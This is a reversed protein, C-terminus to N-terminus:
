SNGFFTEIDLSSAVRKITRLLCNLSSKFLGIEGVRKILCLNEAGLSLLIDEIHIDFAELTHSLGDLVVIAVLDARSVNM